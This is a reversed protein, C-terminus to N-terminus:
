EPLYRATRGRESEGALQPVSELLVGVPDCAVGCDWIRATGDKGATVVRKGDPSFAASLM